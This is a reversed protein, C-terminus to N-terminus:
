PAAPWATAQTAAAAWARRPIRTRPAGQLRLLTYARGTWTPPIPGPPSHQTLPPAQVQLSAAQQPPYRTPLPPNPILRIPHPQFPLPPDEPPWFKSCMSVPGEKGEAGGDRRGVRLFMPSHTYRSPHVGLLDHGPVPLDSHANSQARWWAHPHGPPCPCVSALEHAQPVCAHCECGGEGTGWAWASVRECGPLCWAWARGPGSVLGALLRSSIGIRRPEVFM